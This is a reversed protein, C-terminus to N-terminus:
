RSQLFREQVSVRVQEGRMFGLSSKPNGAITGYAHGQRRYEIEIPTDETARAFDHGVNFGYGQPIIFQLSHTAM